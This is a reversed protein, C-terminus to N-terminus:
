VAEDIIAATEREVEEAAEQIDPSSSVLALLATPPIMGVRTRGAEEYVSIRCPLAMNVGMDRRLVEAAKQPACIEFVRCEGPISFGKEALTRRFDYRHLVGFGHRKAAAELASATEDVSKSTEKVYPM